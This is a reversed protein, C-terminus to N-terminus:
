CYACFNVMEALKKYDKNEAAMMYPKWLETTELQRWFAEVRLAEYSNHVALNASRLAGWQAPWLLTLVLQVFAFCDDQARPVYAVNFRGILARPVCAYGGSYLQPEQMATALHLAEGYDIIVAHDTCWIINDWRLDRHIIDHDHLWHLGDLINELITPWSMVDSGPKIPVGYPIMGFEDTTDCSFVLHAISTHGGLSYILRLMSIEQEVPREPRTDNCAVRRKVVILKNEKPDFEPNVWRGITFTTHIAKPTSFLAIDRLAPNGLRAKIDGLEISFAPIYPHHADNKLVVDRLYTIVHGLKAPLYPRCHLRNGDRKITVVISNKLNSIVGVFVQRQRQRESLLKIYTYLQGCSGKTIDDTIGKAEWIVIISHPDPESIGGVTITFDPKRGGLMARKGKTHTAWVRAGPFSDTRDASLHAQLCDLLPDYTDSETDYEGNVLDVIDESDEPIAHPLIPLPYDLEDPNAILVRDWM